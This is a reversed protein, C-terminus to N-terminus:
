RLPFPDAELRLAVEDSENGRLALAVVAAGALLLSVLVIRVAACGKSCPRPVILRELRERLSHRASWAVATQTPTADTALALLLRGYARPCTGGVAASDCTLESEIELRRCLAHVLPNWWFLARVWAATWRHLGDHQRAHQEEHRLAAQWHAAPWDLASMPVLIRPTFGGVLCPGTVAASVMVPVSSSCGPLSRGERITRKWGRWELLLRVAMLVTGVGWALPLWPGTVTHIAPASFAAAPAHELWVLVPLSWVGGLAIARRAVVWRAPLGHVAALAAGALLLSKVAALHLLTNM